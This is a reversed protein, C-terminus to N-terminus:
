QKKQMRKISKMKYADNRKLVDLINIFKNNEDIFYLIRYNGFRIRFGKGVKVCGLPRPNLKLSKIEKDILVFESFPIKDLSKEASNYWTAKLSLIHNDTM